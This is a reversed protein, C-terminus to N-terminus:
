FFFQVFIKNKLKQSLHTETIKLNKPGKFAMKIKKSFLNKKEGWYVKQTDFSSKPM